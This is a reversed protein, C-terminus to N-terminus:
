APGLGANCCALSAKGSSETLALDRHNMLIGRLMFRNEVLRTLLVPWRVRRGATLYRPPRVHAVSVRQWNSRTGAVRSCRLSGFGAWVRSIRCSYWELGSVPTFYRASLTRVIILPEMPSMVWFADAGKAAQMTTGDSSQAAYEGYSRYTLRKRLALNNANLLTVRV